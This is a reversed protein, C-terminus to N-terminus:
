VLNSALAPNRKQHRRCRRTSFKGGPSKTARFVCSASSILCCEALEGGVNAVFDNYNPGEDPIMIQSGPIINSVCDNMTFYLLSM